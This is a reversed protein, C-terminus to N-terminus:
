FCFAFIVSSSSFIAAQKQGKANLRLCKLLFIHENEQNRNNNKSEDKIINITKVIGGVRDRSDNGCFNKRRELCHKPCGRKIKNRKKNKTFM